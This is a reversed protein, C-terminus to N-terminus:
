AAPQKRYSALGLNGFVPAGRFVDKKEATGDGSHGAPAIRGDGGDSRVVTTGELASLRQVLPETAATVAAKIGSELDARTLSVPAPAEEEKPPEAGGAAAPAPDTRQAPAVAAALDAVSKVLSDFEARSIPQPDAAPAATEPTTASAAPAQTPAGGEPKTTMPNETPQTASRAVAVLLTRPLSDLISITFAKFEDLANSMLAKRDGLPLASYLLIQDLVRRLQWVAADMVETFMEDAMAAAFSLQGWGWSGYATENVAMAYAGPIDQADARIITASVGEELVVVRSEEGEPIDHRVAILDGEGGDESVKAEVGAAALWAAAQEATFKEARFAISAVSVFSKPNKPASEIGASSVIATIGDATLKISTVGENALSKLDGRTAEVGKDTRVVNYGALGFAKMQDTVQEDTYEVPFVMRLVPSPEARKVRRIVTPKMQPKGEKETDSRIVRFAVKNAPRGVVSLYRPTDVRILNGDVDVTDAM